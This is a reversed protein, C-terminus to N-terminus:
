SERRGYGTAKRQNRILQAAEYDGRMLCYLEARVSKHYGEDVLTVHIRTRSISPDFHVYRDTGLKSQYIAEM